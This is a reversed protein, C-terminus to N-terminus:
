AARRSRTRMSAAVLGAGALGTVGVGMFTYFDRALGGTLPLVPPAMPQNALAGIAIEGAVNAAGVAFTRPTPNLVYGPPAKIEALSYDGWALGPLRFRGAAPDKDVGTCAAANAAVCDPVAATATPASAGAGTPGTLRWESGALLSGPTTNDVKSWTATGLIRLNVVPGFSVGTQANAATITVTSSYPTVRQFGSPATTETIVYAGWALGTVRLQGVRHDKDPQGACDAATGICDQVPLSPGGTGPGQVTWSSPGIAVAPTDNSIKQWSITGPIPRNVYTCAVEDGPAIGTIAQGAAGTLTTTATTDDSRTVICRGSLFQYGAQVQESVTVTARNTPGGLTLTWSANGSANTQQTGATPASTVSGTTAIAAAGVTWGQRPAPNQGNVDTLDKHVTVTAVPRANYFTCVHSAGTAALTITGSTAIAQSTVEGDTRCVYRTLYQALNTTGAATETFTLAAGRVVPLPGVVRAQLGTASGDTTATGLQTSGRRLTLTFQDTTRIRAGDVVTEVTLSPPLSCGALDTSDLGPVGIAARNSWDPLDYANVAAGAGILVRGSGDLALGNVDSISATFSRSAVPTLTGGTAAAVDAAAVTFVTQATGTGRTLYLNGSADFVMDGNSGSGTSTTITAKLTFQPTRSPDYRYLKFAITSSSTYGGFYYLNDVPNVAGGVLNAGTNGGLSSTSHGTSSWRGTSPDYTWITGNAAGSGTTRELAYVTQGGAGVGLANFISVGSAATGVAEAAGGATSLRQLQGTGSIALFSGDECLPGLREIIFVGLNLTRTSGSGNWGVADSDVWATPDTVWQFGLPPVSSDPRVRYRSGATITDGSPPAGPSDSGIWKVLYEGPDSDRDVGSCPRATCDAVTRAPSQWTYGSRRQFTFTVGAVPSGEADEVTWYAYPTTVGDGDPVGVVLPVVGVDGGQDDVGVEAMPAEGRGPTGTVPDTVAPTPSPAPAPEPTPLQPTPVQPTPPDAVPNPTGDGAGPPPASTEDGAVVATTTPDNPTAVPDGNAAAFVPGASPAAADEASALPLNTM